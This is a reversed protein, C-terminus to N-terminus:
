SAGALAGLAPEQLYFHPNKDACAGLKAYFAHAGPNEPVTSWQLHEAGIDVAHRAARAMLRRAIGHRRWGEDVYLEAIWVSPCDDAFEFGFTLGIYGVVRGDAEAVYCTFLPSPGLSYREISNVSLTSPKGGEFASLARSFATITAADAHAARRVNVTM